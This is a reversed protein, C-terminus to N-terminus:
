AEQPWLRRGDCHDEWVDRIINNKYLMLGMSKHLNSDGITFDVFEAETFLRTLGDGAVYWCYLDYEGVTTDGEMSQIFDAMGHGMIGTVEGIAKQYASKMKKFEANVNNFDVLLDRDKEEKFQVSPATFISRKRGVPISVDDEITDLGRLILYFICIPLALEPHLAEIVPRLSRGTKRLYDFCVGATTAEYTLGHQLQSHHSNTQSSAPYLFLASLQLLSRLQQPRLAFYLADSALDM